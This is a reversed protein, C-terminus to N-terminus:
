NKVNVMCTIEFTSFQYMERSLRANSAKKHFPWTKLKIDTVTNVIGSVTRFYTWCAQLMHCAQLLKSQHSYRPRPGLKKTNKELFLTFDVIWFFLFCFNWHFRETPILYLYFKTCHLFFPLFHLFTCIFGFLTFLDIRAM